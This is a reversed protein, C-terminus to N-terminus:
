KGDKSKKMQNDDNSYRWEIASFKINKNSQRWKFVIKQNGGSSINMLLATM